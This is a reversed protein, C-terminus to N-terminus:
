AFPDARLPFIPVYQFGLAFNQQVLNSKFPMWALSSGVVLPIGHKFSDFLPLLLLVVKTACTSTHLTTTITINIIAM